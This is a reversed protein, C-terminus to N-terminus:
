FFLQLFTELVVPGDDFGLFVHTEDLLLLLRVYIGGVMVLLGPPHRIHPVGSYAKPEREVIHLGLAKHICDVDSLLDQLGEWVGRLNLAVDDVLTPDLEPDSRSKRIRILSSSRIITSM